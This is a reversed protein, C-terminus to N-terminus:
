QSNDLKRIPPTEAEMQPNQAIIPVEPEPIVTATGAIEMATIGATETTEMAMIGTGMGTTETIGQIIKGTATEKGTIQATETM